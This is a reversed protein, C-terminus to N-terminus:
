HRRSGRARARGAHEPRHPVAAGPPRAAAGKDPPVPASSRQRTAAADPWRGHADFYERAAQERDRERDGETSARILWNMAFIALGAGVIGAGGELESESGLSMVILGAVVVAAPLVYRLLVIGRGSASPSRRQSEDPMQEYM